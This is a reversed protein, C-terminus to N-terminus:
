FAVARHQYETGPFGSDQRMATICHIFAAKYAEQSVPKTNLSRQVNIDLLVAVAAVVEESAWLAAEDYAALFARKDQETPQIASALFVRLSQALKAYVNRRRILLEQQRSLEDKDREIIRQAWLSALHKSLAYVIATGGGLALLIAGVFELAATM